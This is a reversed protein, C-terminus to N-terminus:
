YRGYKGEGAKFLLTSACNCFSLFAIAICRLVFPIHRLIKKFVGVNYKWPTITPVLLYPEKGKIERWVYLFIIPILILLLWLLKPYEFFM